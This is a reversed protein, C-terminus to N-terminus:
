AEGEEDFYGHIGDHICELIYDAPETNRTPFELHLDDRTLDVVVKDQDGTGDSKWWTVVAEVKIRTTKIDKTM